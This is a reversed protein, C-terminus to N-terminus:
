QGPQPNYVCRFGIANLDEIPQKQNFAGNRATVQVLSESSFYDGGRVVKSYDTNFPPGVPNRLEVNLYWNEIYWDAVWEAANGAMDLVNYPSKGEPFEGVPRLGKPPVQCCNALKPNWPTNGWPFIRGDTGRAAKEWQAETPLKYGHDTCYDQADDWTIYVAPYDPPLAHLQAPPTLNRSSLYAEYERVSVEKEHICFKDLYITRERTEEQEVLPDPGMTFNGESVPLMGIPCGTATDMSPTNSREGTLFQAPTQTPSPPINKILAPLTAALVTGIVGIVAVWIQVPIEKKPAASPTTKPSRKNAM